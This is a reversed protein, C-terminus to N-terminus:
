GVQSKVRGGKGGDVGGDGGADGGTGGAGGGVGGADGGGYAGSGRIDAVIPGAAKWWFQSPMLHMSPTKVDSGTSPVQWDGVAEMQREVLKAVSGYKCTSMPPVNPTCKIVTWLLSNAHQM